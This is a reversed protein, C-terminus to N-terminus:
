GEASTILRSAAMPICQMCCHCTKHLPCSRKVIARRDATNAMCMTTAYHLLMETMMALLSQVQFLGGHIHADLQLMIQWEKVTFRAVAAQICADSSPLAYRYLMTSVRPAHDHSCMSAPAYCIRTISARAWSEALHPQMLCCCELRRSCHRQVICISRVQSSGGRSGKAAGTRSTEM